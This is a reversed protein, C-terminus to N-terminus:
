TALKPRSEILRRTIDVRANSYIYMYANEQNSDVVKVFVTLCTYVTLCMNLVNRTIKKKNKKKNPM